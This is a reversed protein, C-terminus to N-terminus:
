KLADKDPTWIIHGPKMGFGVLMLDKPYGCAHGVFRIRGNVFIVRHMDHIHDRYWNSGVSAPVLMLIRAGRKGEEDAKKAWPAIHDYPPNLWGIGKSIAQQWDQILSNDEKSFYRSRKHNEPSAALDITIEGFKTECADVFSQPTGVVTESKGRKLSAGTRKIEESM